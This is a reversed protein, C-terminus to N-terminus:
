WWRPFVKRAMGTIALAILCILLFGGLPSKEAEEMREMQCHIFVAILSLIGLPIHIRLLAKRVGRLAANDKYKECFLRLPWISVSALVLVASSWAIVPNM